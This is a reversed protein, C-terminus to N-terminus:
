NLLFTVYAGDKECLYRLASAGARESRCSFGHVQGPEPGGERVAATAIDRAVACHTDRARIAGARHVPDITVDRCERGFEAFARPHAVDVALRPPGSLEQVRFGLRTPAGIGWKTVAEFGGVYRVAAIAPLDPRLATRGEPSRLARGDRFVVELAQDGAIEVRRGSGPEDLEGYGVEYGPRGGRFEFVVRDFTAHRGVRVDALRVTGGDAGRGSAAAVGIPPVPEADQGGDGGAPTTPTGGPTTRETTEPPSTTATARGTETPQEGGTTAQEGGSGCSALALMAAASAAALSPGARRRGCWRGLHRSRM